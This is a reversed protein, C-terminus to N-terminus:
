SRKKALLLWSDRWGPFIVTIAKYLPRLKPPIKELMNHCSRLEVVQLKLFVAMESLDGKTYERIHGRFPGEASFYRRYDMMNTRGTLVALRKRINVASPVTVFLLGEPKLLKLLQELLPRPSGLWHELVHHIMVMDFFNYAFPLPGGTALHFTIGCDRIWKEIVPLKAAHWDDQWDDTAYAEFGLFKVLATKDCPGAGFDLIRAGAPLYKSVIRGIEWFADEARHEPNDLYAPFPFERLTRRVAEAIDQNLM